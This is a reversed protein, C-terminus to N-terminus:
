RKKPNKEFNICFLEVVKKVIKILIYSFISLITLYLINAPITTHTELQKCFTELINM